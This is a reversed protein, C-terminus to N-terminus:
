PKFFRLLSAGDPCTTLPLRVFFLPLVLYFLTRVYLEMTKREAVPWLLCLASSSFLLSNYLARLLVSYGIASATTQLVAPSPVPKNQAALVVALIHVAYDLEEKRVTGPLLTNATLRRQLIAFVSLAASFSRRLLAHREADSATESIKALADSESMRLSAM